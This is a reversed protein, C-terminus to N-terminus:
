IGSSKIIQLNRRFPKVRNALNMDFGRKFSLSGDLAGEQLTGLVICFAPKGIPELGVCRPCESETLLCLVKIDDNLRPVALIREPPPGSSGGRDGVKRQGRRNGQKPGTRGVGNV